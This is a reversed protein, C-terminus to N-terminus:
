TGVGSLPRNRSQLMDNVRMLGRRIYTKVTGLPLGTHEAIQGHSMGQYTSLLIVRREKPDLQALARHALAAEASIEATNAKWDEVDRMEGEANQLSEPSLRRQQFRRRDILRRRAITCVFTVESGRKPDFREASKWLDVFIEQVADEAEEQNSCYRRALSWLLNGYADM